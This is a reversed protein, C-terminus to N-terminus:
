VPEEDIDKKIDSVNREMYETLLKFGETEAENTFGRFKCRAPIVELLNGNNDYKFCVAWGFLHLARNIWWLLGSEKFEDWTRKEIM